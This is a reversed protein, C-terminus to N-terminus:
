LVQRMGPGSKIVVLKGHSGKPLNEEAANALDGNVESMMGSMMNNVQRQFDNFMNSFAGNSFSDSLGSFARDFSPL